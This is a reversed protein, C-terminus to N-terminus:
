FPTVPQARTACPSANCTDASAAGLEGAYNQGWANFPGSTGFSLSHYDGAEVSAAGGLAGNGTLVQVPNFRDSTSGDGLQGYYNYGWAWVSGDARVALSHDAASIAVVGGFPAANAALAAVPYSRSTSTGDGLAGTFSSGCGIVRGDRKLLLTHRFGAAVAVIGTLPTAPGLLFQVAANRQSTTGDCLQGGSNGGWGWVTGDERLAVGHRDGASIMWVNTLQANSANVVPGPFSRNTTSNRGLRGSLGYGWSWVTGDGKLALSYRDGASSWQVETFPVGADSALVQVARSRAATTGDGLQGQNNAGWGWLVGGDTVALAHDWGGSSLLVEDLPSADFRTVQVPTASATSGGNGLVNGYGFAWLTGDSKRALSFSAGAGLARPLVTATASAESSAPGESAGNAATVVYYYSAGPTLPAHILLTTAHAGIRAGTATTVGPATAWYINYSAAGSVPSWQLLISRHGLSTTLGTPAALAVTPITGSVVASPPGEGALNAGAVAYYYTDGMTLAEHLYPSSVGAVRNGAPPIFGADTSWYVNYSTASAVPDWSLTAQAPATALQVNGPATSPVTPLPTASVSASPASVSTADKAVVLYAYQTGNSLGGHVFPSGADAVLTGSGISVSGLDWYLDYGTAGTVANWSVTVQSDAAVAALGTPTAIRPTGSVENSPLSEDGVAGVSVLRYYYTTGNALGLHTYPSTVSTLKAATAVDVNPATAWYLDYSVAGTQPSWSLQLQGSGATVTPAGPAARVPAASVEATPLSEGGDSNSTVVYYYRTGNSLGGHTWPPSVTVVRTGNSPTVGPSTRWYVSHGSIGPRGAPIWSLRVSASLPTASPNTPPPASPVASVETSPPGEGASTLATVVYHYRTGNSLGGHTHPGSTVDIRAGSAPSVGAATSWYVRYGTAGSVSSWWLQLQGAGDLAYVSAPAGPPGPRPTASVEASLPSEGAANVAAVAYYYTRGNARGLHRFPATANSVGSATSPAVPSTTSWYLTYSQTSSASDWNVLVEGDGPQASVGTPAGPSSPAPLTASVEASPPSEGARNGATVVYHWTSGPARGQDDFPSSVGRVAAASSPSVGAAPAFYVHYSTAGEVANWELRPQGGVISTRVGEPAAPLAPLPEGAGADGGDAQAGPPEECSCLVGLALLAVLHTKM